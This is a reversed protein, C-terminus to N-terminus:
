QLFGGNLLKQYWSPMYKKMEELSFNSKATNVRSTCFVINGQVYGNEPVIKDISLSCRIDYGNGVKYRLVEDTYFCLGRQRHFQEIFEERSIAFKVGFKKARLKLRNYRDGLFSGVSSNLNETLQKRRCALCYTFRYEYKKGHRNFLFQSLLKTEGCKSCEAETESVITLPKRHHGHPKLGHKKLHYGVTRHHCNAKKAIQRNTLKEKHGLLIAELTSPTM